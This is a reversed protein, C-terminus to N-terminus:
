KDAPKDFKIKSNYSRLLQFVSVFVLLYGVFRVGSLLVKQDAFQATAQLIGNAAVFVFGFMLYIWFPPKEMGKFYTVLIYLFGATIGILLAISLGDLILEIAM